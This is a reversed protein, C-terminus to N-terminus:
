WLVRTGFVVSEERSDKGPVWKTLVEAKEGGKSVYGRLM